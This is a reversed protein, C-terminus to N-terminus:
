TRGRILFLLVGVYAGLGAVFGLFLRFSQASDWDNM